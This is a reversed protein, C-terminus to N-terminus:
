RAAPPLEGLLSKAVQELQSAAAKPSIKGGMVDTFAPKMAAEMQDYRVGPREGGM